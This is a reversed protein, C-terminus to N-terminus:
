SKSASGGVCEASKYCCKALKQLYKRWSKSVEAFFKPFNLQRSDHQGLLLRHERRTWTQTWSWAAHGHGYQMGRDMAHGHGHQLGMDRSCTLTWAATGQGHQMGRGQMGMDMTRSWTWPAHGHGHQMDM